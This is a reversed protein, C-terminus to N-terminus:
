ASMNGVVNSNELLPSLLEAPVKLAMKGPICNESSIYNM